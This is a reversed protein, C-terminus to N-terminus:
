ASLRVPAAHDSVVYRGRGQKKAQYMAHDADRLMDDASTYDGCSTAIGISATSDVLHGNIHYPVSFVTLLRRAVAAADDATAIEDLIVVFEDGGLRSAMSLGTKIGVSDAPRLASRLRDAIQRLLEDGVDHGLTDNVHKFRDFDLFLVAFARQTSRASRRICQQLRDQLLARNPLGTLRDHTAAARLLDEAEKRQTVDQIAGCLKVVGADAIVPEGYSRVWVKKGTSTVLPLELDWTVFDDTANRIAAEIKERAEGPYFSNSADVDITSGVPLEHIRYVQDTWTIQKTAIDIEWGGVNAMEGTKRLLAATSMLAAEANKQDTVDQSIGVIQVPAGAADRSAVGGRTRIWRWSGDKHRLRHTSEFLSSTGARIRDLRSRVAATDDPHIRGVWQDHGPPMSEEGLLTLWRSDYQVTNSSLDWEWTGIGGGGLAM